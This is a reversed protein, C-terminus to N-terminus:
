NSGDLTTQFTNGTDKDKCSAAGTADITCSLSGDDVLKQLNEPLGSTIAAASASSTAGSSASSTQSANNDDNDNDDHDRRLVMSPPLRPIVVAHRESQPNPLTAVSTILGLLAFIVINQFYM